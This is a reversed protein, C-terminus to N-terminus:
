PPAQALTFYTHQKCSPTTHSRRFRGNPLMGKDIFRSSYLDFRCPRGSMSEWIPRRSDLADSHKACGYACVVANVIGCVSNGVGM